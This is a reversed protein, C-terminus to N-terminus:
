RDFELFHFGYCRGSRRWPKPRCSRHFACGAFANPFHGRKGGCAGCGTNELELVTSGSLTVCVPTVAGDLVAHVTGATKAANAVKQADLKYITTAAGDVTAVVSQGLPQETITKENEKSTRVTTAGGFKTGSSDQATKVWIAVFAADQNETPNKFRCKLTYGTGSQLGTFLGGDQWPGDDLSYECRADANTVTIATKTVSVTPVAPKEKEQAAGATVSIDYKAGSVVNPVTVWVWKSDGTTVVQADAAAGNVTASAGDLGMPYPGSRFRVTNATNGTLTFSATQSLNQPYNASFDIMSLGHPVQMKTVSVDWNEPLRPMLTVVGDTEDSVGASILLTRMSEAQQALNGLDGQKRYTGTSQMYCAFEPVIYPDPLRPAYCLKTLQEVFRGYDATKDLLLSTQSMINQDYGLGRPGVYTDGIFANKDAEYTANSLAYWNQPAKEAVNYGVYDAYTAIAPDHFFGAKALNWKGDQVFNSLIAEELGDALATWESAAETKGAALAMQAYMRVGLYCPVNNYMTFDMMGGESEGYLLGNESFSVEPHELCWSIFEVAENIYTWNDNVWAPDSGTNKWVNYIGMMTLGHGDPEMNGMNQYEDGFLEKTYKTPWNAQPVLVTSYLMPLNTVVCWHGPISLGKMTLNNEPFYMLMQNDFDVVKQAIENYGVTSLTIIDKHNRSYMNNFFTGTNPRWSGFGGLRRSDKNSENVMGNPEIKDLMNQINHYFVGSAINALPTGSFEVRTKDYNEPYAFGPSTEYDEEFTVLNRNMAALNELLKAPVPGCSVTHSDFFSNSADVPKGGSLAGTTGEPVLYGGAFVPNGVKEPNDKIMIQSIPKNQIKVKLVLDAAGEIGGALHLTELLMAAMTDDKEEGVFPAKGDAWNASFWMTYGFVLPVTDKTGDQYSIELDGASDGLSLIESEIITGWAPTGRDASNYGGVLYLYDGSLNDAAPLFPMNFWGDGVLDAISLSEYGYFHLDTLSVVVASEASSTFTLRIKTTKINGLSVTEGGAAIAGCEKASQWAGGDWYEVNYGAVNSWNYDKYEAIQFSTVEAEKGFDAVIWAGNVDGSATSWRTNVDADGVFAPAVSADWQSSASFASVPLLSEARMVASYAEIEFISVTRATKCSLFNMRLKQTTTQEFKILTGDTFSEGVYVTKWKEGELVQVSYRNVDSYTKCEFVSLGAVQTPAGFDIEVFSSGVDDLASSWRSPETFGGDFMLEPGFGPWFTSASYTKGAAINELTKESVAESKASVNGSLDTAQVTFRYQTNGALGTVTYPPKTAQYTKGSDEDCLIYGGVGVDDEAEDWTFTLSHGGKDVVALNKAASPPQSDTSGGEYFAMEFITPSIGTSGHVLLRAKQAEVPAFLMLTGDPIVNGEYVDQWVGGAECQITFSTVAGWSTCEKIRVASITTSEGFDVGLYCGEVDEAQASWRTTGDGDFAKAASYTDGEPWESSAFYTKGDSKRKYVRQSLSIEETAAEGAADRLCLRVSIEDAADVTFEVPSVEGGPSVTVDLTREGLAGGAGNSVAVWLKAAQGLLSSGALVKPALQVVTQGKDEFSTLKASLAQAGSAFGVAPPMCLLCSLLVCVFKKM